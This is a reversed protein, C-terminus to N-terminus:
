KPEKILQRLPASVYSMSAILADRGRNDAISLVRFDPRTGWDDRFYFIPDGQMGRLADRLYSVNFFWSVPSEEQWTGNGQITLQGIESTITLRRTAPDFTLVCERLNGYAAVHFMQRLFSASGGPRRTPIFMLTTAAGRPAAYAQLTTLRKYLGPARDENLPCILTSDCLSAELRHFRHGNTAIVHGDILYTGRLAGELRLQEAQDPYDNDKLRALRVWSINDIM